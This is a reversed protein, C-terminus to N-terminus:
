GGFATRFARSLADQDVQWLEALERSVAEDWWDALLRRNSKNEAIWLLNGIVKRYYLDEGQQVLEEPIYTDLRKITRYLEKNCSRRIKRPTPLPSTHKGPKPMM